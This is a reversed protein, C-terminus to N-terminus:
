KQFNYNGKRFILPQSKTTLQITQHHFIIGIIQHTTKNFLLIMANRKDANPNNMEGKVFVNKLKIFCSSGYHEVQSEKTKDQHTVVKNQKRIKKPFEGAQKEM